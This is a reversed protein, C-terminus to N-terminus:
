PATPTPDDVPADVPCWVAGSAGLFSCRRAWAPVPASWAGEGPPPGGTAGQDAQGEHRRRWTDAAVDLRSRGAWPADSLNAFGLLPEHLWRYTADSRLQLDRAADEPLGFLSLVDCESTRAHKARWPHIFVGVATEARLEAGLSIYGVHDLLNASRVYMPQAARGNVTVCSHARVASIEVGQARYLARLHDVYVIMSHPYLVSQSVSLTVDTEPVLRWVRTDGFDGASEGPIASEAADSSVVELWLWGSRDVLKMHWAYLAGENSWRSSEPYLVLHRLPIAFHLAGALWLLAPAGKPTPAGREARRPEPRDPIYLALALAMLPPFVGLGFWVKNCVHFLLAACVGIRRLRWSAFLLALPVLLDLACGGYCVIAAFPRALSPGSSGAVASISGGLAVDLEELMNPAWSLVPENLVLWDPNLKALGGYFYPTALLLQLSRLQWGGDREAPRRLNGWGLARSDFTALLACVEAMLVYHNNYFTRDLQVFYVLLGFSCALCLRPLLGAATLGGLVALAGRLKHLWTYSLPYLPLHQFPADTCPSAVSPPAGLRM